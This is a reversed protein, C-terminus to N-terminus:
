PHNAPDDVTLGEALAAADLERDASVLTITGTGAALRRANLEIAAALQAPDDAAWILTHSDLLLKM